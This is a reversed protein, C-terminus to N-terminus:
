DHKIPSGYLVEENMQHAALVDAASRMPATAARLKQECFRAIYTHVQETHQQRQDPQHTTTVVLTCVLQADKDHYESCARHEHTCAHADNKVRNDRQHKHNDLHVTPVRPAAPKHREPFQHDRDTEACAAHCHVM